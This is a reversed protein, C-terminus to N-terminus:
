EDVLLGFSLRYPNNPAIGIKFAEVGKVTYEKGDIKVKMGRLDDPNWMGEPLSEVISYVNGRGYLKFKGKSTFEYM